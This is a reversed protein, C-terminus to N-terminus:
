SYRTSTSTILRRSIKLSILNEPEEKEETVSSLHNHYYNDQMSGVTDDDIVGAFRRYIRKSSTAKSSL